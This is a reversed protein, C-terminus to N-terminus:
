FDREFNEGYKLQKHYIDRIKNFFEKYERTRYDPYTLECEIFSKKNSNFFLTNELFIGHGIYIRHSFDKTTALTVNSLTVYGPDLNIDRGNKSTNLKIKEELQNTRIKIDAISERKILDRFSYFNKFLKKGMEQEYYDTWNFPFLESECDIKGWVEELCPKIKLIIEKNIGICGIFLKAKEPFQITGM